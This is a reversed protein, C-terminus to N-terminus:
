ERCFVASPEVEVLFAENALCPVGIWTACPLTEGFMTKLAGSIAKSEHMHSQKMYLRLSGVDNLTAGVTALAVALNELSKKLQLGVDGPGVINRDADWAVQGSVHVVDGAPTPLVAVQAFGHTRSDFLGVPVPTSRM